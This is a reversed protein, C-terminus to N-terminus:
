KFLSAITASEFNRKVLQLEVNKLRMPKIASAINREGILWKVKGHPYKAFHYTSCLLCIKSADITNFDTVDVSMTECENNLIFEKLNNVTEFINEKYSSAKLFTEQAVAFTM